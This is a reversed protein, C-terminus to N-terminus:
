WYQTTDDYFPLSGEDDLARLSETGPSGRLRAHVNVIGHEPGADYPRVIWISRRKGEDDPRRMPQPIAQLQSAPRTGIRSSPRTEARAVSERGASEHEPIPQPEEFMSLYSAPNESWKDTARRQFQKTEPCSVPVLRPPPPPALGPNADGLVFQGDGDENKVAVPAEVRSLSAQVPNDLGVVDAWVFEEAKNWMAAANDIIRQELGTEMRIGLMSGLFILHHALMQCLHEKMALWLTPSRQFEPSLMMEAASASLPFTPSQHYHHRDELFAPSASCGVGLVAGLVLLFLVQCSQRGCGALFQPTLVRDLHKLLRYGSTQGAACLDRTPLTKSSNNSNNSNDRWGAHVLSTALLFRRFGSMLGAGETSSSNGTTSEEEEQFQLGLLSSCCLGVISGNPLQFDPDTLWSLMTKNFAAPNSTLSFNAPTAIRSLLDGMARMLPEIQMTATAAAERSSSEFINVDAFRTRVCYGFSLVKREFGRVASQLCPQCPNDLSCQIKLIRCRLCAGQRRVGLVKGRGQSTFNSGSRRPREPGFTRFYHISQALSPVAARSPALGPGDQALRAM